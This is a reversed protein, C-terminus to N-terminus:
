AKEVLKNIERLCDQQCDWHTGCGKKVAQWKAAIVSMTMGPSTCCAM